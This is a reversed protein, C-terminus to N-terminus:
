LGGGGGGGGGDRRQRDRQTHKNNSDVFLSTLQHDFSTVCVCRCLGSNGMTVRVLFALLYM